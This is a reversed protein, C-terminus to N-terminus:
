ATTYSYPTPATVEIVIRCLADIEAAAAGIEAAAAVVDDAPEGEAEAVKRFVVEYDAREM